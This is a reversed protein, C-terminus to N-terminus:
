TQLISYKATLVCEYTHVCVCWKGMEVRRRMDNGLAAMRPNSPVAIMVDCITRLADNTCKKMLCEHLLQNRKNPNHEIVIVKQDVEDIIGRYLLDVVVTSADM